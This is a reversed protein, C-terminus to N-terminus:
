PAMQIVRTDLHSRIRRSRRCSSSRRRTIGKTAAAMITAAVGTRTGILTTITTILTTITAITTIPTTITAITTITTITDAVMGALEMTVAMTGVEMTVAMTGVEMTVAM